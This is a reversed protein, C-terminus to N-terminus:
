RAVALSRAVARDGQALRVFYVAVPLHGIDIRIEHDGPGFGEIARTLVRRGNVDLIEVTAADGGALRFRLRLDGRTPNPRLDRIALGPRRIGDLVGAAPLGNGSILAAFIDSEQAGRRFDRWAFIARGSETECMGGHIQNNPATCIPLGDAPWTGYPVGHGTYRTVYVDYDTGNRRDFWGIFAGGSGDSAIVPAEQQYMRTCIGIGEPAWGGAVNGNARLRNAYIDYGGSRSDQWAFLAGGEGDTTIVPYFHNGSSQAVSIGQTTWGQALTGGALVHQAYADLEFVRRRDTWVIFAGDAGDSAMAPSDLQQPSSCALLGEAPWGGALTGDYGYRIAYIQWAPADRREVWAFIAGGAGDSIVSPSLSGASQPCINTGGPQWGTVLSGQANVHTALVTFIFAGGSGDAALATPGSGPLVAVGEYAWVPVGAGTLRQVRTYASGDRHSEYWAIIAGGAGDSVISPYQHEEYPEQPAIQVGNAPWGAAIEGDVTVHQAFVYYRDSWVVIAGGAGDPAASIAALPPYFDTSPGTATSLLVGDTPWDAVAPAAVTGVWCALATAVRLVRIRM